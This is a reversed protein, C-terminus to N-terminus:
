WFSAHWFIEGPFVKRAFTATRLNKSLFRGISFSDDGADAASLLDLASGLKAFSIFGYSESPSYDFLVSQRFDENEALSKQTKQHASIVARTGKEHSSIVLFPGVFGYSFKVKSEPNEATFYDFGEFNEKGIPVESRDLAVIEERVSNDPLTIKQVKSAFASQAFHIAQSLESLNKANDAGGFGSVLTFHLFPSLANEFDILIAYQSHMKAFFDNQFDFKEGFTERSWARIMGDFIVSFQPHLSDLWNRTHQYKAFLDTGNMFFLADAPAFSALEPLTIQPKKQVKQDAFIGDESLMQSRISLRDGDFYVGIAGAFVQSASADLLPKQASWKPSDFFSDVIKASDFFVSIFNRSGLHSKVSAFNSTQTLNEPASFFNQLSTASSSFVAWGRFYGISIPSSFAPTQVVAGNPFTKTELNEGPLALSDVFKELAAKSRVRAAFVMKGDELVAFGARSGIWTQVSEAFSIGIKEGIIQDFIEPLNSDPFVNAARLLNKSNLNIEVVAGASAPSISAFSPSSFWFIKALFGLGGLLFLALGLSFIPSPRSTQTKM